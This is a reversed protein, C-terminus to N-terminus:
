SVASVRQCGGGDRFFLCPELVCLTVDAGAKIFHDGIQLCQAPVNILVTIPPRSLCLLISDPVSRASSSHATHTHTHTHVTVIAKGKWGSPKCDSQSSMTTNQPTHGYKCWKKHKCEHHTKSLTGVMLEFGLWVLKWIATLVTQLCNPALSSQLLFVSVDSRSSVALQTYYNM